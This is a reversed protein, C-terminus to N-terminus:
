LFHHIKFRQVTQWWVFFVPPFWSFGVEFFNLQMSAHAALYGWDWGLVLEFNLGYKKIREELWISFYFCASAFSDGKFFGM